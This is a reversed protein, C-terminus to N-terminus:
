RAAFLSRGRREVLGLREARQLYKYATPVSVRLREIIQAAAPEEHDLSRVLDILEDDGLPSRPGPRRRVMAGTVSGASLRDRARDTETRGGWIGFEEGTAIAHQGCEHRVDCRACVALAASTPIGSVPYFLWTPLGRCAARERWRSGGSAGSM